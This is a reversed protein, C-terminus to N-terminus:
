TTHNSKELLARGKATLRYKQLRSKPKDPITREILGLDFLRKVQKHLEGSVSRHELFAALETKGAESEALRLVVKAALASELRSELRPSMGVHAEVEPAVYPTVEPTVQLRAKPPQSFTALQLNV